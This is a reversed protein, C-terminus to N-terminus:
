VYRCFLFSLEGSFDTTKMYIDRSNVQPSGVCLWCPYRAFMCLSLVRFWAWTLDQGSILCVCPASGIKLNAKLLVLMLLSHLTHPAAHLLVCVIIVPLTPLFRCSVQFVHKKTSSDKLVRVFTGSWATRTTGGVRHGSQQQQKYHGKRCWFISVFIISTSIIGETHQLRQLEPSPTYEGNSVLAPKKM